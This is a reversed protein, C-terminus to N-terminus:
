RQVVWISTDLLFTTCEPVPPPSPAVTDISDQCQGTSVRQFRRTVRGKRGTMGRSSEPQLETSARARTM